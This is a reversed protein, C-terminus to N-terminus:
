LITSSRPAIGGPNGPLESEDATSQSMAMLAMLLIGSYGGAVFSAVVWWASVM